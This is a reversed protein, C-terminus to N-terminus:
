KDAKTDDPRKASDWDCDLGSGRGQDTSLCTVETGDETTVTVEYLETYPLDDGSSKIAKSTYSADSSAEYAEDPSPQSDSTPGDYACGTLALASVFVAGVIATKLNKLKVM